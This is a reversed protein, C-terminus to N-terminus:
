KKVIKGTYDGVKMIYVGQPLHALSVPSHRLFYKGSVLGGAINYIRITNGEPLDGNEIWVEGTTPNPYVRLPLRENMPVATVVPTKKQVGTPMKPGSAAEIIPDKEVNNVLINDHANMGPVDLQQHIPITNNTGIALVNDEVTIYSSCNDLYVCGIPSEEAWTGRKIDHIYNATIKTGRQRALTYIGGDDDHIRMVHHVHNRQILNDKLDTENNEFHDGIQMGGFPGFRIENNEVTLRNACSAFIGM